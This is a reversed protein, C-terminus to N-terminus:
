ESGARNQREDPPADLQSLWREARPVWFKWGAPAPPWSPDPRWDASPRWDVPQAPWGPPPNWLMMRPMEALPIPDPVRTARADLRIVVVIALLAAALTLADAAALMNSAKVVDDLNHRPLNTGIANAIESLVWFAWWVHFSLPIRTPSTDPPAAARWTEDVMQKPRVLNLLPVFWGAIAWGPSHRLPTPHIRELKRLMRYHWTIFLTGTIVLLLFSVNTAVLARHDWSEGTAPDLVVQARRVQDAYHARGLHETVSWVASAACATLGVVIWPALRRLRQM